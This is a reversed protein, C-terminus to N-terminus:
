IDTELRLSSEKLYYYFEVCYFMLFKCIINIKLKFLSQNHKLEM